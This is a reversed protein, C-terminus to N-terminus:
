RRRTTVKTKALRLVVRSVGTGAAALAALLRHAHHQRLEALLLGEFVDITLVGGRLQVPKIKATQTSSLVEALATAVRQFRRLRQIEESKMLVDVLASVPM